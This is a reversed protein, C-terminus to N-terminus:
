CKHLTIANKIKDVHESHIKYTLLWNIHECKAHEVTCSHENFDSWEEGNLKTGSSCYTMLIIMDYM